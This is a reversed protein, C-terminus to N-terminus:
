NYMRISEGAEWDGKVSDRGKDGREKEESLTFEGGPYGEV